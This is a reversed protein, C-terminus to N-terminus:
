ILSGDAGVRVPIAPLGVTAPGPALIRAGVYERSDRTPVGPDMSSFVIVGLAMAVLLSTTALGAKAMGDAATMSGRSPM